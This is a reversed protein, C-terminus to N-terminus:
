RIEPVEVGYEVSSDLITHWLSGAFSSFVLLNFVPSGDAADASRWLNVTTHDVSTSAAAGAPFADDHFDISAIKALMKRADPGSIQILARGDSQDSLSAIDKFTDHLPDLPSMAGQRPSLAMVQNPGSWIITMDKGAVAKPATPAAVGFHAKIAKAAAAWKGRRAFILVLDFDRMESLIIGPKQTTAGHRGVLAIDHLPSRVTWTFDAV